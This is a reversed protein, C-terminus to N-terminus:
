LKNALKMDKENIVASAIDEGTQNDTFIVYWSGQIAYDAMIVGRMGKHVGNKAYKEKEVVVEIEDYEKFQSVAFSDHKLPELNDILNKVESIYQKPLEGVLELNNLEVDVCAYDGINELNMFIVRAYTEFIEYLFGFTNEKIGKCILEDNLTKVKVFNFKKLEDEETLRIVFM